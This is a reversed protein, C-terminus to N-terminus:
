FLPHVLSVPRSFAAFFAFSCALSVLSCSLSLTLSRFLSFRLSGALPRSRVLSGALSRSRVLSVSLVLACSLPLSPISLPITLFANRDVSFLLTGVIRFKKDLMEKKSYRLNLPRPPTLEEAM